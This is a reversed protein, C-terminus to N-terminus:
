DGGDGRERHPVQIGGQRLEDVRLQDELTANRGVGCILELVSKHLVGGIGTQHSTTTPLQMGENAACEYLVKGFTCIDLRLDHRVMVSLRTQSIRGDVVPVLSTLPRDAGRRIRFCDFM